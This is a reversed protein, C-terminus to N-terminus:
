KRWLVKSINSVNSLQLVNLGQGGMKRVDYEFGRAFLNKSYKDYYYDFGIDRMLRTFTGYGGAFDLFQADKNFLFYILISVAKMLDLNRKLIGTDSINIVENYAEELWYPEETQLFGCYECNFYDVQYKKIIKASFISKTISGCIKCIM